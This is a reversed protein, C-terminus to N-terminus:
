VGWAVGGTAGQWISGARTFGAEGVACMDYNDYGVLSECRRSRQMTPSRRVSVNIGHQKKVIAVMLYVCIAIWIQSRVASPHTGYFAKIRLNQKIWKFFLEITLPYM